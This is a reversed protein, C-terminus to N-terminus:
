RMFLVGHLNLLVIVERPEGYETGVSDVAKGSKSAVQASVEMEGSVDWSNGAEAV